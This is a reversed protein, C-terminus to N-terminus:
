LDRLDSLFAASKSKSPASPVARRGFAERETLILLKAEPIAVGASLNLHLAACGPGTGEAEPLDQELMLERLRDRMGGTSGLLRVRWGENVRRRAEDALERLRGQFEQAKQATFAISAESQWETLHLTARSPDKEAFRDEPDACVVGGRRLTVIAEAIRTLEADALAAEWAEDLKIRLCPPVFHALQGKPHPLMPYFLEEGPFHGHSLLRARRYGLDDQPEPTLDAKADLIARLADDADDGQGREGEFRPYLLVAELDEGTRHQTEPDFYSLRELEDGFTELRLPLDLHDPWLDIVLGRASFDGPQSAMEARRYGLDVLAELLIERPLEAGKRLELRRKQFWTPHPLKERAALPGTVLVQVRGEVLGALTAMRDRLISGPPSSEGGAYPALGPFHAVGAGPMLAALDAALSQAESESPADVWLPRIRGEASVWRALLLALASGQTWRLRAGEALASVDMCRLLDQLAARDRSDM